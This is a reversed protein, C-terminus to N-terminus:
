FGLLVRSASVVWLATAGVYAVINSIKPSNFNNYCARLMREILDRTKELHKGSGYIHNQLRIEVQTLVCRNDNLTWQAIMAGVLVLYTRLLLGRGIFPVSVVLAIISFHLARIAWLLLISGYRKLM